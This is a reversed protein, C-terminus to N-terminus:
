TKCQEHKFIKKRAVTCADNVIGTDKPYCTKLKGPLRRSISLGAKLQDICQRLGPLFIAPEKRIRSKIKSLFDNKNDRIVEHRVAAEM